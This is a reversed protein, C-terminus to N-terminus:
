KLELHNMKMNRVEPVESIIKNSKESVSSESDELKKVLIEANFSNTNTKHLNESRSKNMKM